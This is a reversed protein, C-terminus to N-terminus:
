NGGQTADVEEYDPQLPQEAEEPQWAVFDGVFKTFKAEVPQLEEWYPSIRFKNVIADVGISTKLAVWDLNQWEPGYSDYLWAALDGGTNDPVGSNDRRFYGMVVPAVIEILVGFRPPLGDMAAANGAPQAQAPQPPQMPQGPSPAPQPLAPAQPQVPQMPQPQRAQGGGSLLKAVLAPGLAEVIPSQLIATYFEQDGSMRSRAVNTIANGARDKMFGWLGKIDDPLLGVEQADKIAEKLGGFMGRKQEGPKDRMDKIEKRLEAAEAADRDIQKTLLAVVTDLMKNETAAPAPPTPPPMLEKVGKIIELTQNPQPRLREEARAQARDLVDMADVLDSTASQKQQQQQAATDPLLNRCWEWKKNQPIELWEGKALKPPFNQDLIDIDMSDIEQDTKETPAKFTLYLRYRGSGQDQKIRDEDVPEAYKAIHKPEGLRVRDISPELRYLTIFARTGWDPKAIAQVRKFFGMVTPIRDTGKPPRGGRNRPEHKRTEPAPPETKGTKESTPM